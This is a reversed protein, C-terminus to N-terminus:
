MKLIEPNKQPAPFGLDKPYLFCIVPKYFALLLIVKPRYPAKISRKSFNDWDFGKFWPHAKLEAASDKGMGLRQTPNHVLLKKVLDRM